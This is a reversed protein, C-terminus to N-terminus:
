RRHRSLTMRSAPRCEYDFWAYLACSLARRFMRRIDDPASASLRIRAVLDYHDSFQMSRWGGDVPVMVNAYREDATLAEPYPRLM